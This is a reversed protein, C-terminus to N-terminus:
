VVGADELTEYAHRGTVTSEEDDLAGCEGMLSLMSTISRKHDGSIKHADLSEILLARAEKARTFDHYLSKSESSLSVARWLFSLPPNVGGAKKATLKKTNSKRLEVFCETSFSKSLAEFNRILAKLYKMIDAVEIRTLDFTDQMKQNLDEGM